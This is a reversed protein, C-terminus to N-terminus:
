RAEQFDPVTAATVRDYQAHTGIFKIFAVRASFKFAVVLRYNGGCIEFVCRESPETKFRANPCLVPVSRKRLRGHISVVHDLGKAGMCGIKMPGPNSPEIQEARDGTPFGTRVAIDVKEEIGVIRAETQDLQDIDLITDAIDQARLGIHHRPGAQMWHKPRLDFRFRQANESTGRLM